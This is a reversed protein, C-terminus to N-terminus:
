DKRPYVRDIIAGVIYSSVAGCCLMVGIIGIAIQEMM